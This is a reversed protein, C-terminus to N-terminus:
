KGISYLLNIDLEEDVQNINGDYFRKLDDLTGDRAADFINLIKM